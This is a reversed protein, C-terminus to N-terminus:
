GGVGAPTLQLSITESDSDEKVKVTAIKLAQSITRCTQTTTVDVCWGPVLAPVDLGADPSLTAEQSDLFVPAPCSAALRSRAAAEASADDLISTEEVVREILGYYPHVGGAVGKVGDKGHVVWRTALALGDEVVVLEDAFDADSLSALRASHDEPLILIRSGLATFDIGTAALDRLHDGTQGVDAQYSRRGRIRSPAVITVAHGPDHPAFGDDVLWQAVEALEHDVFEQTTHPSRRDLWGLIDVASIVAGDVTWEVSSSIPGEWVPVTGRYIALKHRWTRVRSLAACCEADPAVVVQAESIDDLVRSWEVSLLIDTGAVISGDRDTIQATHSACGAM